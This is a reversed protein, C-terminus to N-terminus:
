YAEALYVIETAERGCAICKAGPKPREERDLRHGRVELGLREEVKAACDAGDMGTSCFPARLIEYGSRLGEAAAELTEADSTKAGLKGDAEETLDLIMDLAEKQLWGALEEMGVQARKRTDRRFVTVYGGREEKSGIEVRFPVGMMEWHYYKAGPSREETDITARVGAGRLKLLARECLGQVGDDGPIPVIVVQVPVAEFPLVLGSNDGHIAIMAALTRGIGPGFCTQYVPKNEGDTDQFSIGFAKSFKTGLYHTSAVQNLKGDPMLCDAAYTNVAGKFKDWQPRLCFLISIGLKRLAKVAVEMDERVQKLADDETPFACHTEIWLFERGRLLPRTAKTEYRFVTCSQYLKLPLDRISRIWLSYMPYFATESTPRLALRKELPDNGGHTVWLVEPTFGLVHESEKQLNEEPIVVPFLTPLHGRAELEEEYIRYIQKIMVMGWPRYVVFGKVNYRDDIIEAERVIRNYWESFDSDKDVSFTEKEPM